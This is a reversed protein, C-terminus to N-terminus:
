KRLALIVAVGVAAMGILADRSLTVGGGDGAAPEVGSLNDILAQAGRGGGLDLKIIPTVGINATIENTATSKSKSSSFLGM